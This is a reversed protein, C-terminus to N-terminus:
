YHEQNSYFEHAASEIVGHTASSYIPQVILLNKQNSCFLYSHGLLLFADEVKLVGFPNATSRTIYKLSPFRVVARLIDVEM